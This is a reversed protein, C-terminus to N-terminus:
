RKIEENQKLEVKYPWYEIEHYDHMKTDQKSWGRFIITKKDEGKLLEYVQEISTPRVGNISMILRYQQWGFREAYSGSRVSPVHFYRELAWREPYVDEAIMAGDALVYKRDLIKKEPEVSILADLEKEGRRLQLKAEGSQGRLATKLKTPTDVAEGNVGTVRDGVKIGDPLKEHTGVSVILYEESEENVAFSIPLKPPSPNKNNRMLSLIKCIPKSPVAFNLGETDKLGMSNIGVIEGSDLEILPGGSNGPNIAADTQVWDVGDYYRVQSIIGRSASYTLGHPHGFAAVALGNLARDSCDLRAEVATEPINKQEVAIVAFDLEPDIYVPKADFYEHGKFSVELDATGRGSVHANTLVWGRAKDVLFGAGNSTGASDEAFAYRITSKIRVAYNSADDIPSASAGVSSFLLFTFILHLYKM